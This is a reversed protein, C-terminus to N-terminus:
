AERWTCERKEYKEIWSKTTTRTGRWKRGGLFDALHLCYKICQFPNVPWSLGKKEPLIEWAWVLMWFCLWASRHVVWYSQSVNKDGLVIIDDTRNKSMNALTIHLPRPNKWDRAFRSFRAYNKKRRDALYASIINQSTLFM